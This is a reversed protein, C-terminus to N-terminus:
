EALAEYRQMWYGRATEDVELVTLLEAVGGGHRKDEVNPYGEGNWSGEGGLTVGVTQSMTYAKNVLKMLFEVWNRVDDENLCGAHQRFEITRACHEDRLLYQYNVIHGKTTGCMMRVLKAMTMDPAFIMERARSFSLGYYPEECDEPPTPPPTLLSPAAEDDQSGHSELDWDDDDYTMRTEADAYFEDLNTAVDTGSLIGGERRSAPHLSSIESEYMVLLYSLHQITPLDFSPLVEGLKANPPPLGVHVHMGCHDTALAGHLSAANGRLSTLYTAIEEFAAPSPELIRSVLELGHSDWTGIEDIRDGFNALLTKQSVGMISTDECVHWRSFTDRKGSYLLSHFDTNPPLLPLAVHLIEDVYPRCGFKDLREGTPTKEGSLLLPVPSTLAWGMYQPRTPLYDIVCRRFDRRMEDTLDKVIETSTNTSKLHDTLLSEHFTFVCEFEVGFSLKLGASAM